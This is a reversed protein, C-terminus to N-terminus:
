ANTSAPPLVLTSRRADLSPLDPKVGALEVGGPPAPKIGAMRDPTFSAPTFGAGGGIVMGQDPCFESEGVGALGIPLTSFVSMADGQKM